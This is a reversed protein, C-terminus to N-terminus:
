DDKKTTLAAATTVEEEEQRQHAATGSSAPSIITTVAAKYIIRLIKMWWVVNLVYFGALVIMMPHRYTIDGKTLLLQRYLIPIWVIRCLTFVIAFLIFHIPQRTQKSYHLFPTSLECYTAKSNMKLIFFTPHAYNAVGLVLCITAHLLYERDRRFICDVADVVFYCLSFAIPIHERVTIFYGNTTTTTSLLSLTALTIAVVHHINHVTHWRSFDRRLLFRGYVYIGLWFTAFIYFPVHSSEDDWWQIISWSALLSPSSADMM